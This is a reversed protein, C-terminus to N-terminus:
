LLRKIQLIFLEIQELRELIYNKDTTSLSQGQQVKQQVNQNIANGFMADLKRMEQEVDFYNPDSKKEDFNYQYPNKQQSKQSYSSGDDFLADIKQMENQVDFDDQKSTSAYRQQPAQAQFSESDLISDIESDNFMYKKANGQATTNQIKRM